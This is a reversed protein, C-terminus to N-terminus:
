FPSKQITLIYFDKYLFPYRHVPLFSFLSECSAIKCFFPTSGVNYHAGSIWQFKIPAFTTWYIERLKVLNMM